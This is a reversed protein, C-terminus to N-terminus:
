YYNSIAKHSKKIKKYSDLEKGKEEKVATIIGQNMQVIKRLTEIIAPHVESKNKKDLWKMITEINKVQEVELSSMSEWDQSEVCSVMKETLILTEKIM